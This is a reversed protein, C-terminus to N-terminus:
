QIVSFINVDNQNYGTPLESNLNLNVKKPKRRRGGLGNLRDTGEMRQHTDENM